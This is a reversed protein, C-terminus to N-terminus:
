RRLLVPAFVPCPFQRGGLVPIVPWRTIPREAWIRGINSRAGIRMEIHLNFRKRRHPVYPMHGRGFAFGARREDIELRPQVRMSVPQKARRIQETAVLGISLVEHLFRQQLSQLGRM